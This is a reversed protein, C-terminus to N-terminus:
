ADGNDLIRRAVEDVVALSNYAGAQIRGRIEAMREPTLGAGKTSLERGANSIQVSDKVEGKPAAAPAAGTGVVAQAGTARAAADPRITPAANPTIKM